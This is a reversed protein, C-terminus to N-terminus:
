IREFLVVKYNRQGQLSELVCKVYLILVTAKFKGCFRPGVAVPWGQKVDQSTFTFDEKAHTM